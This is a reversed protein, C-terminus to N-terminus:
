KEEQNIKKLIDNYEEIHDKLQRIKYEDSDFQEECDNWHYWINPKVEENLILRDVIPDNEEEYVQKFFNISEETPFYIHYITESKYIPSNIKENYYDLLIIGTNFLEAERLKREYKECEYDDDFEKGDKARYIIEM